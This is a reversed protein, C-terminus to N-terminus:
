LKLLQKTLKGKTTEVTIFYTGQALNDLSVSFSSSNLNRMKLVVEGIDNNIVIARIPIASNLEFSNMVPNPYIEILRPDLEDIDVGQVFNFTTIITDNIAVQDDLYEVRFEATAEAVSPYSMSSDFEITKSEGAAISISQRNRYITIPGVKVDCVVEANTINELGDNRFTAVPKYVSSKQINEENVPGDARLVQLDKRKAVVFTSTFVNNVMNDDVGIIESKLTFVGGDSWSWTKNTNMNFLVTSAMDPPSVTDAFVVTNEEDLITIKVEISKASDIGSNLLSFRPRIVEGIEITDEPQLHEVLNLDLGFRTIYTTRLTDSTQREDEGTWLNTATLYFDGLADFDLLKFSVTDIVGSALSVNINDSYIEAGTNDEISVSIPANTIDNLGTNQVLVEVNGSQSNVPVVGAPNYVSLLRLDNGTVVSFQSIATDNEPIQDDDITVTTTFTYDGLSDLVIADFLAQKISFFSVSQHLSDYYIVEDLSNTITAEVVVSDQSNIGDNLYRVFPRMSENKAFRQGNEPRTISTIQVDDTKVGAVPSVFVTDNVRFSDNALDTYARITFNGNSTFYTTDFAFISTTLAGLDVLKAQTYVVDDQSNLIQMVVPLDTHSKVGYNALRVVVQIPDRLMDFSENPMPSFIQDVAVDYEKIFSFEIEAQNNDTVSDLPLEAVVRFTYNGLRFKSLKGFDVVATDEAPLSIIVTRTEELTNFQNFIQGKVVFSGQNQYGFNIIRAVLDISDVDSYLISDGAQPTIFDLVAVDNAVQLRPRINFNFNFGPDFGTWTTDGAPATFYFTHPRIPNEEQFTFSVNTTSAQRIGVFYGGNIAIRPLVPMIFTGIVSQSTDSVFVETGPLGNTGDDDWVVLQFPQNARNFDVKIQNIYSTGEVYFKAVFDGTSGNFGIGGSTTSFPDNHSYVNYNVERSKAISDNDANDDPAVKIILTETGIGQALHSGFKLMVQGYPPVNTLEISDTYTNAGTVNLYVKQSVVTDMGLNTIVAKITDARRMLVPITGLSYIRNVELDQSHIPYYLKLTPKILSSMTTISDIGTNSTGFIYKAENASQFGPVSFGNEVNWQFIGTQNTSQVYEVLLKLHVKGGSTDWAYPQTFEFLVEGPSNGIINKPNGNYVEVMDNRSTSDWNLPAFGFDFSASSAILIRMNVGGRLSDFANYFFSLARLTDGHELDTLSAQPYTFAFKSYYSPTTDSRMPGFNASSFLGTGIQTYQAYGSFLTFIFVFALLIKKVM